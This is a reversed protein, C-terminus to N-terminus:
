ASNDSVTSNTLTLTRGENYIGGGNGNPSKGHQITLGTLQATVDANVRFVRVANGGDVAIVRGSGDITVNKDLTLTSTTITITMDSGFVITDGSDASALTDRLTGKGSDENSTVTRTAAWTPVAALMLLLAGLRLVLRSVHNM